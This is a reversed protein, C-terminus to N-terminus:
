SNGNSNGNIKVSIIDGLFLIASDQNAPENASKVYINCWRMGYGTIVTWNFLGNAIHVPELWVCNHQDCIRQAIAVLENRSLKKRNLFLM